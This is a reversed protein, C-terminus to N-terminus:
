GPSPATTENVSADAAAACRKRAAHSSTMSAVLKPPRCEDASRRARQPVSSMASPKMRKEHPMSSM